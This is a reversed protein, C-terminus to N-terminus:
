DSEDIYDKPDWSLRRDENDDGDHDEDELDHFGEYTEIQPQAFAACRRCLDGISIGENYNKPLMVMIPGNQICCVQDLFFQGLLVHQREPARTSGLSSLFDRLDNKHNEPLRPHDVLAEASSSGVHFRVYSMAVAQTTFDLRMHGIPDDDIREIRLTKSRVAGTGASASISWSFDDGDFISLSSSNEPFPLLVSCGSDVMVHAYSIGCFSNNTSPIFFRRKRNRSAIAVVCTPLSLASPDDGRARVRRTEENDQGAEERTRRRDQSSEM